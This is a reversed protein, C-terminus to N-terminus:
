TLSTNGVNM